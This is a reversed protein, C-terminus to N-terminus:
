AYGKSFPEGSKIVGFIQRILKHSIAVKIVKEPKGKGSLREYLAACQQNKTKASWSCMYLMSRMRSNGVKSIHARGRVSTGSEFTRPSMGIFSIFQKVQTHSFKQFGDTLCIMM